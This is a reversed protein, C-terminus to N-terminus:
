FHLNDVFTSEFLPDISLDMSICRKAISEFVSPSHFLAHMAGTLSTNAKLTIKSALAQPIMNLVMLDSVKLHNTFGGTVTLTHIQDCTVKAHEMLLGLTTRIASKALQFERIDKQSLAITDTLKVEQLLVGAPTIWQMKVLKAILSIYGSGCIGLPEHDFLTKVVWGGNVYDVDYIAGHTAAMGCSMNMGEFAPGAAASSVFLKERNGVCVEGNTGLDLLVNISESTHMKTAYIGSVIDGGIFASCLPLTLTHYTGRLILPKSTHFLLLFPFYGLSQISTNHYLHTM